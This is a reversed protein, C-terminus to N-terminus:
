TLVNTLLKKSMSSNLPNTINKVIKQKTLDTLVLSHLAVFAPHVEIENLVTTWDKASDGTTKTVEDLDNVKLHLGIEDCRVTITLMDGKTYQLLNQPIVVWVKTGTDVAKGVAIRDDADYVKIQLSNNNEGTGDTATLLKIPFAGKIDDYDFNVIFKITLSFNNSPFTLPKTLSTAARTATGGDTPIYSSPFGGEELNAADAYVEELTNGTVRGDIIYPTVTNTGTMGATLHHRTWASSTVSANLDVTEGGAGATILRLPTTGSTSVAKLYASFTYNSGTLSAVADAIRGDADASIDLTQADASGLVGTTSDPTVTASSLKTWTGRDMNTSNDLYNTRADELLLGKIGTIAPGQAETLLINLYGSVTNGNEYDYYATGDVFCSPNENAQGTIDEAMNNRVYVTVPDGTIVNELVLIHRQGSGDSGLLGQM